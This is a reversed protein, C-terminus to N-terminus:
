NFIYRLGVQMQWRSSRTGADDIIELGEAFNPNFSFEPNVGNREVEVIGVNSSIFRQEGWDKNLFNFFNFIDLSLQFTHEKDNFNLSFDQLVKLDVIHNWPGRDGNREAYDGRRESLYDNSDIYADLAAWQDAASIGNNDVLNIESQDRPIYFLANDNSDDNLLDRGQYIYNITGGQQGNYFM